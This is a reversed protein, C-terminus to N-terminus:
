KQGLEAPWNVVLQISTAEKSSEEQLILFRQADTTPVIANCDSPIQFLARPAGAHFSGASEDIPVSMMSVGDGALYLLQVDKGAAIGFPFSNNSGNTNYNYYQPQAILSSNLGAMLLLM